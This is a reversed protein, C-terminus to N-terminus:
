SNPKTKISVLKKPDLTALPWFWKQETGAIIKVFRTSHRSSFYTNCHIIDGILTYNYPFTILLESKFPM